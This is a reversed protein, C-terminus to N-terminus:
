AVMSLPSKVFRPFHTQPTQTCPMQTRSMVKNSCLNRNVKEKGNILYYEFYFNFFIKPVFTEDIKLIGIMTGYKDKDLERM